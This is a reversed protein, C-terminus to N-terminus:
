AGALVALKDDLDDLFEHRAERGLGLHHIDAIGPALQAIEIMHCQFHQAHLYVAVAFHGIDDQVIFLFALQDQHLRDCAVARHIRLPM